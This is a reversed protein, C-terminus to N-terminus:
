RGQAHGCGINCDYPARTRWAPFCSPHPSAHPSHRGIHHHEHQCGHHRVGGRVGHEALADAVPEPKLLEIEHLRVGAETMTVWKATVRTTALPDGAGPDTTLGSGAPTSSRTRRRCPVSTSILSALMVTVGYEREIGWPVHEAMASGIKTSTGPTEAPSRVPRVSMSPTVPPVTDTMSQRPM